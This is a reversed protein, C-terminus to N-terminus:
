DEIKSPLSDLFREDLHPETVWMYTIMKRKNFTGVVQGSLCVKLDFESRLMEVIKELYALVTYKKNDKIKEEYM